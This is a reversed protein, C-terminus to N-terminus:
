RKASSEPGATFDRPYHAARGNIGRGIADSMTRIERNSREVRPLRLREAQRAIKLRLSTRATQLYTKLRAIKRFVTGDRPLRIEVFAGCLVYIYSVLLPVHNLRLAHAIRGLLNRLHGEPPRRM